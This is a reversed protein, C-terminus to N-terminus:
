CHHVQIDVFRQKFAAATGGYQRTSPKGAYSRRRLCALHDDLATCSVSLSGFAGSRCRRRLTRVESNDTYVTQSLVNDRARLLMAQNVIVWYSISTIIIIIIIITICELTNFFLLSELSLRVPNCVSLLSCVINYHHLCSMSTFFTKKINKYCNLFM